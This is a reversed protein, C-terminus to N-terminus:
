INVVHEMDTHAFIIARSQPGDNSPKHLQKANYDINISAVACLGQPIFDFSYILCNSWMIYHKEIALLLEKLM